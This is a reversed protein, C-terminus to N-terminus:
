FDLQVIDYLLLNESSIPWLISPSSVCVISGKKCNRTELHTLSSCNTSSNNSSSYCYGGCGGGGGGDTSGPVITVHHM